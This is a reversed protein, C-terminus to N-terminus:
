AEPHQQRAVGLFAEAAHSMEGPKRYVLRIHRPINGLRASIRAAVLSGGQEGDEWILKFNGGSGLILTAPNKRTDQGNHYEGTIIM